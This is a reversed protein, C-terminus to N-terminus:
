FKLLDNMTFVGNKDKIFEAAIVAGLAFGKRSKAEHAMSITDVDSDYTITHIGFVNEERVAHINLKSAKDATDEEWENKRELNAMLGEALKIATGSPSDLKQTHHAEEIEVNYQEFNNMIQALYENLKFFINVGLSYNPAHFLATQNENALKSVAPLHEMWGTTGCVVPLKANLCRTINSVATDPRTFEIAVDAKALNEPTFEHQNDIDIALSIQHGRELAIKEVIKGMKGYGILAIKM